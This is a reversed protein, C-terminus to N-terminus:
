AVDLKLLTFLDGMHELYLDPEIQVFREPPIINWRVLAAQIGARHAAELDLPSDGVMLTNEPQANMLEMARWLAEPHPKANKVEDGSVIYDIYPLLGFERLAIETPARYKNTVVGMPIQGEHLKALTDKVGPFTRTLKSAHEAYFKRYAQCLEDVREPCFYTMQKALPEGFIKMLESRQVDYNLCQKLTHEFSTLIIENTDLITGDLDFLLYRFM